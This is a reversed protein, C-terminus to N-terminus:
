YVLGDSVEANIQNERGINLTGKLIKLFIYSVKRKALVSPKM